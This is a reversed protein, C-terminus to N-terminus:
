KSNFSTTCNDYTTQREFPNNAIYEANFLCPSSLVELVRGWYPIIGAGERAELAICKCGQNAKNHLYCLSSLICTCEMPPWLPPRCRETTPYPKLTKEDRGQKQVKKLNMGVRFSFNRSFKGGLVMKLQLAGSHLKVNEATDDQKVHAHLKISKPTHLTYLHFPYICTSYVFFPTTHELKGNHVTVHACLNM